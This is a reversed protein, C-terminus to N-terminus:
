GQHSPSDSRRLQPNAIGYAVDTLLNVAIYTLGIALICGQVLSYDRNSIASLTLRGIGPLSFVTETVIAGALLSGFQLGIVTLVPNLANRLAHRYLISRETVGKARATRIYDQNLEELMSTRVIRTLIAALGSGLTVTPLILHAMFNAGSGAGSVPLLGLQISFVLILIPGLAFNPFSLGLFSALGLTRDQWQGAHRASAIGCPVAIGCGFLLASFSLTLTYPYRSLVLRIVSEHMRLSQGLDARFVGTIYRIYQTSITADLGYAHRMATIDAASAGEGLMQVIPDGPVLHILLFVVSVVLWLVPIAVLLRRIAQGFATM